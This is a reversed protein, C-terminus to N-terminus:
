EELLAASLCHSGLETCSCGPIAGELVVGIVCVTPPILLVSVCFKKFTSFKQKKAPQLTPTNGNSSFMLYCNPCLVSDISVESKCRPCILIDNKDFIYM